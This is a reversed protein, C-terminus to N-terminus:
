SLMCYKDIILESHYLTCVINLIANYPIIWQCIVNVNVPENNRVDVSYITFRLRLLKALNNHKQYYQM